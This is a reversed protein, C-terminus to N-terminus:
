LEEHEPVDEEDDYGEEGDEMGDEDEFDVEEDEDEGEEDEDFGEDEESDDNDGEDEPASAEEEEEQVEGAQKRLYNEVDKVLGAEAKLDKLIKDQQERIQEFEKKKEALESQMNSEKVKLDDTSLKQLDVIMKSTAEDCKEIRTPGCLPQLNNKAFKSLAAFKRGGDYSKLEDRPDGWKITPFGAVEMKECLDENLKKTCDVDAVVAFDSDAWEAMLKDWDPKM